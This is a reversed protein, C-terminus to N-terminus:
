PLFYQIPRAEGAGGSRDQLQRLMDERFERIKLVRERLRYIKEHTNRLYAEHRDLLLEVLSEESGDVQNRTAARPDPNRNDTAGLLLRWDDNGPAPENTAAERNTSDTTLSLFEIGFCFGARSRVIGAVRITDAGHSPFQVEMLDGPKCQVGGYVEMGSRSIESVLGPVAVTAADGDTTISVPLHVHFRPFRRKHISQIM